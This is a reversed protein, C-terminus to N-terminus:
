FLLGGADAASEGGGSSEIAARLLGADLELREAVGAVLRRKFRTAGYGAQSPPDWVKSDAPPLEPAVASRGDIFQINVKGLMKTLLDASVHKTLIDAPNGSGLMKELLVSGDRVKTQM